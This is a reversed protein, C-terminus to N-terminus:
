LGEYKKNIYNLLENTIEVKEDAHLISQKSESGIILQYKKEKSFEDVYGHIRSWIKVSQESAFNQNFQELADKAQIFQQMVIKKDANSISPSQVKTYLSDVSQKRTNFEKEGLHKMEKTMNFGDFLKNNDVYVIEPKSVLFRFALVIILILFLVTNILLFLNLRTKVV